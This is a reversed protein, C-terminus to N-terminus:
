RASTVAPTNFHARHVRRDRALIEGARRPGGCELFRETGFQALAHHFAALWEGDCLGVRRVLDEM